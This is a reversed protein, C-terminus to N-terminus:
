ESSKVGNPVTITVRNNTGLSKTLKDAAIQIAPKMLGPVHTKNETSTVPLKSRPNNDSEIHIKNASNTAKPDSNYSHPPRSSSSKQGPHQFNVSVTVTGKASATQKSAGNQLTDQSDNQKQLNSRSLTQTLESHLQGTINSGDVSSTSKRVDAAPASLFDFRTPIRREVGSPYEGITVSIPRQKGTTRGDRLTSQNTSSNQTKNKNRAPVFYTEPPKPKPSQPNKLTFSEISQMEVADANQPKSQSTAASTKTLNTAALRSQPNLLPKSPTNICTQSSSHKGQLASNRNMTSLSVTPSSVSSSSSTDYDPTPCSPPRGNLSSALSLAPSPSKRSSSSSESESTPMPPPPPPPVGLSNKTVVIVERKQSMSQPVPSNHKKTTASTRQYSVKEEEEDKKSRQTKVLEREKYTCIVVAPRKTRNGTAKM